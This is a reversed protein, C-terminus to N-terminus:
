HRYLRSYWSPLLECTSHQRRFTVTGRIKSVKM